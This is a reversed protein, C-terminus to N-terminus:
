HSLNYVYYRLKTTLHWWGWSCLVIYKRSIEMGRGSFILMHLMFLWVVRIILRSVRFARSLRRWKDRSKVSFFLFARSLLTTDACPLCETKICRHVWLIYDAVLHSSSTRIFRRKASASKLQGSTCIGRHMALYWWSNERLTYMRVYLRMQCADKYNDDTNVILQGSIWRAM